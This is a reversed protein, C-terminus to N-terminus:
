VVIGLVMLVHDTTRLTKKAIRGWCVGSMKIEEGGDVVFFSQLACLRANCFISKDCFLLNMSCVLWVFSGGCCRTKSNQLFPSRRKPYQQQLIVFLIDDVGYLKSNSRFDIFDKM